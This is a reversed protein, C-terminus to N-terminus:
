PKDFGVEAGANLTISALCLANSYLVDGNMYRIMLTGYPGIKRPPLSDDKGSFYISLLYQEDDLRGFLMSDVFQFGFM